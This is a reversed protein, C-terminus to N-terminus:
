ETFRLDNIERMMEFNSCWICRLDDPISDDWNLQRTVLKSKLLGQCVIGEQSSTQSLM